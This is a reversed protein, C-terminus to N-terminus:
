TGGGLLTEMKEDYNWNTLIKNQTQDVNQDVNRLFVEILDIANLLDLEDIQDYRVNMDRSNSHGTIAMSVNRVVGAKRANTIFTRRLDHFIFGNEVFRGYAIDAIECARKLGDRIDKVPKGAYTFVLKSNQRDPIQMLISRLTKSIPIKKTRREKTDEARL